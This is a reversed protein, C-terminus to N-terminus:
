QTRKLSVVVWEGERIAGVELGGDPLDAVRPASPSGGELANLADLVVGLLKQDKIAEIVHRGELDGPAAGMLRAAEDEARGVIFNADAWFRAGDGPRDSPPPPVPTAARVPSAGVSPTPPTAPSREAPPPLDVTPYAAARSAPATPGKPITREILRNVSRAVESLETFGQTLPLRAADGKVVAEVDDQLAQLPALTFRKALLLSVVVSLLLVLFGLFLVAVAWSGSTTAVEYTVVALGVRLGRDLVPEVMVYDGNARRGLYFTRIADVKPQIGKIETLTEGARSSPALLKGDLSLLLAEKVREERIVPDIDLDRSRGDAMASANTAALLDLLVRGRRLSEERLANGLTRVLPLALVLYVTLTAGLVILAQKATWSWATAPAEDADVPPAM